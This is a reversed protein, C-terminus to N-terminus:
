QIECQRVTPNFIPGGWTVIEENILVDVQIQGPGQGACLIDCSYGHCNNGITKILVGWPGNPIRAANFDRASQKLFNIQDGHSMM